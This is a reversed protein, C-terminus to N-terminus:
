YHNEIDIVQGNCSPCKLSKIDKEDYVKKCSLCKYVIPERCYKKALFYILFTIILSYIGRQSSPDYWFGRSYIKIGIINLFGDIGFIGIMINISFKTCVFKKM